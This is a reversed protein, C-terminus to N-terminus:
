CAAEKREERSVLVEWVYDKTWKSQELHLYELLADNAEADIRSLATYIVDMESVNYNLEELVQVMEDVRQLYQTMTEGSSYDRELTFFKRRWILLNLLGKRLKKDNVRKWAIAAAGQKGKLNMILKVLEPQLVLARCLKNFAKKDKKDWEAQARELQEATMGVKEKGKPTTKPPQKPTKPGSKSTEEDEGRDSTSSGEGGSSAGHFSEPRSDSGDIINELDREEMWLLFNFRWLNFDRGEYRPPGDEKESKIALRM